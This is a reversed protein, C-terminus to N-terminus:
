LGGYGGGYGYFIRDPKHYDSIKVPTQKASNDMVYLESSNKSVLLYDDTYWGYTNYESLSAVQKGDRGDENGIFLTNKGDRSESWFTKEGNPSLLYTAYSDGYYGDATISSDEKVQGESYVYFRDKNGDYHRLLIVNPSKIQQDINISSPNDPDAPFSRIAKKATGDPKVSNFTAQKSSLGAAVSGYYSASWNKIYFIQNEYAYVGGIDETLYDYNGSGAATTQDLTILKKSQADFSKLAQRNTQWLQVNNRSAKYVFNSGAWGTLDFYANGEDILTLSDDATSIMYLSPSGGARKSLLALYKWDRSALLVTNRDDEKGTGALVIERVTGDLNTKVVDIKGSLKSLFYIKGSPTLNISNQQIKDNSIKISVEADNYGQLSLRAKQESVGIPLVMVVSGTNDTKSVSGAAEIKVNALPNKNIVNAVDIKVQRGTALLEVSFDKKKNVIPVLMSVSRDKYYKKTILFNHSGVKIHRLVAKGSADTDTSLSGLSVRAGSVPTNTESDLVKLTLDRKVLTGALAYRTFPIAGIIIVLLLLTVPITLKKRDSYWTKFRRWRSGDSDSQDKKPLEAEAPTDAKAPPKYKHEETM